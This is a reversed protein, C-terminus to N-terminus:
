KLKQVFMGILIQLSYQVVQSKFEQCDHMMGHHLIIEKLPLEEELYNQKLHVVLLEVVLSQQLQHLVELLSVVVQMYREVSYHMVQILM